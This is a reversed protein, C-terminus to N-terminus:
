TPFFAPTPPVPPAPSFSTERCGSERLAGPLRRWGGLKFVLAWFRLRARPSPPGPVSGLPTQAGAGVPRVKSYVIQLTLPIAERDGDIGLRKSGPGTGCVSM